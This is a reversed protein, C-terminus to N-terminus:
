GELKKIAAELEALAERVEAENKDTVPKYDVKYLARRAADATAKMEHLDGRAIANRIPVGYPPLLGSRNEPNM